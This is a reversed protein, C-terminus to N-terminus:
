DIEHRQWGLDTRRLEYAPWYQRDLKLTTVDVTGNWTVTKLRVSSRDPRGKVAAIFADLDPTPKGDVAVIRRGAFLQYRTAPSGYAFYAVFVGEPPIGRQASMARHPAHLVAGAWLLLRDIDRGGLAATALELALEAGDRLVTVGVRPGRTAREVDRFRSVPTGNVALLLDGERLVAAAPSGAVVRSIGLVQRHAGSRAELRAAWADGLGRKRAEALPVAEFEAELSYLPRGTREAELLEEVLDIPMGRNVQVLDRGTEAAFSSWLARVRGDRGVVVGDFESPGNVLKAVELNSERFQLTRSLPFNVDDISAITTALSRVRSDGNMGVVTVAEGAVLERTDLSAARIPTGDLLAPDFAVLALNHLPHVYAVRAPVELSGAVTIRVDGVAVPV